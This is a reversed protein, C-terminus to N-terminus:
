IGECANNRIYYFVAKDLKCVTVNLKVLEVEVRDYWHRGADCLGYVAQKLKWILDTHAEKPPKIYVDRTLPIGQLFASKIDISNIKWNKSVILSLALRLSDKTCTPAKKVLNSSDEEFGRAVLRAKCVLSGGKVKETCVWRCSILQQGRNEVESYVDMQKWKQLEERKATAFKDSQVQKGIYVFQSSEVTPEIDDAPDSDMEEPDSADKWYTIDDRFSIACKEDTGVPQVNLFHWHVGGVKGGRGVVKGVVWDNQETTKYAIVQKMKPLDKVSQAPGNSSSTHTPTQLSIPESTQDPPEPLISGDDDLSEQSSVSSEDDSMYSESESDSFESSETDSSESSETDSFESTGCDSSVPQPMVDLSRPSEDTLKNEPCEDVESSSIPHVPALRCPHVRYYFGGHKLLCTQNDKGLIKAPGHWNDSSLRKYYVMDGICYVKDSYSRTKRSLARKIKESAEAKVFEQRSTNLANLHMEMIESKTETNNAPVKNDLVNPFNPNKGFVLQNPSFGHVNSLSNKACLAWALAVETSCGVDLRIKHINAAIIANHRECLGNSWPSEAATTKISINFKEAFDVMEENIFEGGNDSLFKKPPGFRTM